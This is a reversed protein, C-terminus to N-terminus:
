QVNPNFSPGINQQVQGTYTTNNGPQAYLNNHRHKRMATPTFQRMPQRHVTEEAEELAEVPLNVDIKLQMPSRLRSVFAPPTDSQRQQQQQVQQRQVQQQQQQNLKFEELQLLRTTELEVNVVQLQQEKETLKEKWQQDLHNKSQELQSIRAQLRTNTNQISELTAELSEIRKSSYLTQREYDFNKETAQRQWEKRVQLKAQCQQLHETTSTQQKIAEELKL